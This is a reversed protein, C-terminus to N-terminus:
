VQGRSKEAASGRIVRDFRDSRIPGVRPPAAARLSWGQSDGPCDLTLHGDLHLEVLAAAVALTCERHTPDYHRNVLLFIRGGDLEPCTAALRKMFEDAGLEDQSAFIRPLTRALRDYPNPQFADSGDHWGLGMYRLWRRFGAYKTNNFRNSAPVDDLAERNFKSEWYAGKGAAAHADDAPQAILFAYFKAFWPEVDERELVYTDLAELLVERSSRRERAELRMQIYGAEEQALELEKLAKIVNKINQSASSLDPLGQPQFLQKVSTMPAQKQPLKRVVDIFAEVRAPTIAEDMFM